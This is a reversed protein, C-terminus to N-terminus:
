KAAPDVAILVTAGAGTRGALKEPAEPTITAEVIQRDVNAFTSLATLSSRDVRPSIRAVTGAIEGPWAESKITVRAGAKVRFADAANIEAKIVMNRTDGLELVGRGAPSEGPYALIRLVEGDMPAEAGTAALLAEARAVAAKAEETEARAIASDAPRVERLAALQHQSMTVKAQTAELHAAAENKGATTDPVKRAKEARVEAEQSKILAERAATEEAKPGASLARLREEATALHARAIALDAAALTENQTVALKQGRTVRDGEKVLLDRVTQPAGQFYPLAVTVPREGPSVRGYAAIRDGPTGAPVRGAGLTLCLAGALGHWCGSPSFKRRLRAPSLRIM